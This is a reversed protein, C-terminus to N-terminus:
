LFARTERGIALTAALPDDDSTGDVYRAARKNFFPARHLNLHGWLERVLNTHTRDSAADDDNALAVLPAQALSRGAMWAELCRLFVDTATNGVIPAFYQAGAVRYANTSTMAHRFAVFFRSRRELTPVDPCDFFPFWRNNTHLRGEHAELGDSIIRDVFGQLAKAATTAGLSKKQLLEWGPPDDVGGLFSRIPRLFKTYSSRSPYDRFRTQLEGSAHADDLLRSVRLAFGVLADEAAGEPFKPWKASFFATFVRRDLRYWFENRPDFRLPSALAVKAGGFTAVQTAANHAISKDFAGSEMRALSAAYDFTSM